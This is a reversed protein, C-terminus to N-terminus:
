TTQATGLMLTLCSTPPQQPPSTCLSPLGPDAKYHEERTELFLSAGLLVTQVTFAREPDPARLCEAQSRSIPLRNKSSPLRHLFVLLLIAGGSGLQQLLSSPAVWSGWAQSPLPASLQPEGSAAPYTGARCSNNSPPSPLLLQPSPKRRQWCIPEQRCGSTQRNERSGRWLGKLSPAGLVRPRSLTQGVGGWGRTCPAACLRSPPEPARARPQPCGHRSVVQLWRPSGVTSQSAM